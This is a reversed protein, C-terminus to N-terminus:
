NYAYRGAVRLSLCIEWTHLHTTRVRRTLVVCRWVHSIIGEGKRKAVQVSISYQTVICVFADSKLMLLNMSAQEWYRFPSIIPMSSVESLVGESSCLLSPLSSFCDTCPFIAIFPVRLPRSKVRSGSVGKLSNSLARESRSASAGLKKWPAERATSVL